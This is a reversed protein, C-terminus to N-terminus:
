LEKAAEGAQKAKAEGEKSDPNQEEKKEGEKAAQALSGGEAYQAGQREERKAAEVELMGERVQEITAGEPATTTFAMSDIDEHYEGPGEAEVQAKLAAM